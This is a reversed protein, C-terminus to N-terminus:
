KIKVYAKSNEDDIDKLLWVNDFDFKKDVYEDAPIVFTDGYEATIHAYYNEGDREPYRSVISEGLNAVLQKHLTKLADQNVIDIVQVPMREPKVLLGTVINPQSSENFFTTLSQILQNENIENLKFRRKLALQAFWGNEGYYVPEGVQPERDLFTVIQYPFELNM